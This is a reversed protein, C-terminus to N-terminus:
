DEKELEAIRAKLEAIKREKSPLYDSIVRYCERLAKQMEKANCPNPSSRFVDKMTDHEWVNLSISNTYLTPFFSLGKRQAIRQIVAIKYVTMGATINFTNSM